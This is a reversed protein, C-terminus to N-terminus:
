MMLEIASYFMFLSILIAAEYKELRHKSKIFTILLVTIFFYESFAVLGVYASSITIPTIVALLGIVLTSNTVCSGVINGFGMGIKRKKVVEITFVLEPLSTGVSVIFLGIFLMPLGADIALQKALMVILQALGIMLGVWLLMQVMIWWRHKKHVKKDVKLNMDEPGTKEGKFFLDYVYWVYALILLLGEFSSIKLDTLFIFPLFGYVLYNINKKMDKEKVFHLGNGIIAAIGLVISLNAINSGIANGLALSTSGNLAASISVSIEPLSTVLAIILATAQFGTMNFNKILKDLLKVVMETIKGLLFSLSLILVIKVIVM